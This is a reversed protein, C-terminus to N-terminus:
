EQRFTKIQKTKVNVSFSAASLFFFHLKITCPFNTLLIEQYTYVPFNFKFPRHMHNGAICIHFLQIAAKYDEM